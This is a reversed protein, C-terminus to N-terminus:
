KMLNGNLKMLQTESVKGNYRADTLRVLADQYTQQIAQLELTNSSGVRFRELAINVSEKVLKLNDEELALIKQDDQYQKFAILLQQEVQSQLNSYNIAANETQLQANKIKSNLTFGNFIRWSATLGYNLGLNRNFLIQGAQYQARSFIYNANLNIVPFMDAKIGRVQQKSLAINEQAYQLSLNTKQYNNKLDEYRVQFDVPISDSVEFVTENPRALLQNLAAKFEELATKARYLTSTQANKDTKAQLVDLKSGAGVDLRKQAITLREESIKINENLGKILQKQKVINYYTIIISQLTNEIQIKSSLKGMAELESLQEHTAFMKLGNFLTWTLYIGSGITTAKAGTRDVPPSSSFEQKIDSKSFNTSANIDIVPLMGANGLNNNNAAITANNNQIAIDYNSKLGIEIAQELTFEGQAIVQNNFVICSIIIIFKHIRMTLNKTNQIKQIFM